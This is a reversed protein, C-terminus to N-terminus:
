SRSSENLHILEEVLMQAILPYPVPPKEPEGLDPGLELDRSRRLPALRELIERDIIRMMAKEHGEALVASAGGTGGFVYIPSGERLECFIEVEQEV